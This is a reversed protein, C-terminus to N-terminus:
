DKWFLWYLGGDKHDLYQRINQPLKINSWLPAECWILLRILADKIPLLQNSTQFRPSSDESFAQHELINASTVIINPARDSRGLIESNRRDDRVGYNKPELGRM